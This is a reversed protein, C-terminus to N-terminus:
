CRGAALAPSPTQFFGSGKRPSGRFDPPWFSDIRLARGPLCLNDMMDDKIILILSMSHITIAMCEVGVHDYKLQM